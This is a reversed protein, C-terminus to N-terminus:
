EDIEFELHATYPNSQLIQLTNISFAVGEFTSSTRTSFLGVGNNINSFAPRDQVAGTNTSSNVDIFDSLDSGGMRVLIDIDRTWDPDITGPIGITRTAGQTVPVREGISRIINEGSLPVQTTQGGLTGVAGLRAALWTVSKEETVGNLTERYHFRLWVEYVPANAATRFRITYDKFSQTGTSYLDMQQVAPSNSSPNEFRFSALNIIDTRSDAAYTTDQTTPDIKLIELGYQKTPDLNHDSHYLRQQPGFFDFEDDDPDGTGKNGITVTDMAFRTVSTGPGYEVLNVRVKAPDFYSSDPVLAMDFASQQGLFMKQVRILHGEGGNAPNDNPDLLGYVVARDQYEGILDFETTCGSVVMLAMVGFMKRLM